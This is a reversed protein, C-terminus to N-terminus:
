KHHNHDIYDNLKTMNLAGNIDSLLEWLKPLKDIFPIYAENTKVKLLEDKVEWAEVMDLVICIQKEKIQTTM